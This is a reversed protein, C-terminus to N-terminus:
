NGLRQVPVATCQDRVAPASVVLDVHEAIEHEGRRERQRDPHEKLGLVVRRGTPQRNNAISVTDMVDVLVEDMGSSGPRPAAVLIDVSQERGAPEGARRLVIPQGLLYREDVQRADREAPELLGDSLHGSLEVLQAVLM